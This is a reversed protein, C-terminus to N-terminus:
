HIVYRTRDVSVVEFRDRLGVLVQVDRILTGSKAIGPNWSKKEGDQHISFSPYICSLWRDVLAPPNLSLAYMDAWTHRQSQCSSM